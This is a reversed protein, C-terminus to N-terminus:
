RRRSVRRRAGLVLVVLAGALADAGRTRQTCGCGTDADNNGFGTGSIGGGGASASAATSAAGGSSEDGGGTGTTDDDDGGDSSGAGSTTTENASGSSSGADDAVGTCLDVGVCVVVEATTLNGDVDTANVRLTWMGEPINTLGWDHPPVHDELAQGAEVIELVVEVDGFQDDVTAVVQVNPDVVSLDAPSDITVVPPGDDVRVGVIPTLDATSNQQGTTCGIHTCNAANDLAVCTDGFEVGAQSFTGMIQGSVGVPELGWGFGLATMGFFALRPLDEQQNDPTCGWFMFSINEVDTDTCDALGISASCGLDPFLEGNDAESGFVLMDYNGVAPREFTFHIDFPVTGHKFWYMLEARQADDLAPYGDVTGPMFSTSAYSDLSPDNGSNTNIAQQELNLFVTRQASAVTPLLLGLVAVSGVGCARLFTM